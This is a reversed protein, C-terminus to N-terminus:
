PTTSAEGDSPADSPADSAGGSGAPGVHVREVGEPSWDDASVDGSQGIEFRGYVYAHAGWFRRDGGTPGWANDLDLIWEFGAGLPFDLDEDTRIALALATQGLDPDGDMGAASPLAWALLSAGVDVVNGLRLAAGAELQFMMEVNGRGIVTEGPALSPALVRAGYDGHTPLFIPISATANVVIWDVAWRYVAAPWITFAQDAWAAPNRFSTHWASQRTLLGRAGAFSGTNFQDTATPLAIGGGILLRHEPGVDINAFGELEINGLETQDSSSSLNLPDPSASAWTHIFALPISLQVLFDRFDAQVSLHSAWVTGGIDTHGGGVIPDSHNGTFLFNDWRPTIRVFADSRSPAGFGLDQASAPAGISLALALATAFALRTM